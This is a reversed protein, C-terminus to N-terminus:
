KDIKTHFISRQHILWVKFQVFDIGTLVPRFEVIEGMQGNAKKNSCAVERLQGSEMRGEILTQALESWLVSTAAQTRSSKLRWGLM